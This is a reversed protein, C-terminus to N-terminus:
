LFICRHPLGRDTSWGGGGGHVCLCVAHVTRPGLGDAVLSRGIYVLVIHACMLGASSAATSELQGSACSLMGPRLRIRYYRSSQRYARMVNIYYYNLIYMNYIIGALYTMVYLDIIIVM